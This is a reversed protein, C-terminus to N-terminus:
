SIGLLLGSVPSGIMNSIPLAAMFLAVAKARDENRFWHSIYLIMGPFFGAAAGGLLFRLLYFQNKTHM